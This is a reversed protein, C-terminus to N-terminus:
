LAGSRTKTYPFVKTSTMELDYHRPHKEDLPTDMNVEELCAVKAQDVNTLDTARVYDPLYLHGMEFRQEDSVNAKKNLIGGTHQEGVSVYAIVDTPTMCDDMFYSPLHAIKYNHPAWGRNVIIGKRTNYDLNENEQTILPVFMHGGTQGSRKKEFISAHKYIFRGKIKIPRYLWEDLNGHNWPFNVLEDGKLEYIPM